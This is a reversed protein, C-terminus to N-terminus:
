PKVSRFQQLPPNIPRRPPAVNLSALLLQKQEEALRASQALGENKTEALLENTRHTAKVLDGVVGALRDVSGGVEKCGDGKLSAIVAIFAGMSILILCLGVYPAIHAGNVGHILAVWDPM